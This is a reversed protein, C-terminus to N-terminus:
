NLREVTAREVVGAQQTREAIEAVGSRHAELAVADPTVGSVVQTSGAKGPKGQVPSKRAVGIAGSRVVETKPGVALTTKDEVSSREPATKVRIPFREPQGLHDVHWRSRSQIAAVAQQTVVTDERAADAM